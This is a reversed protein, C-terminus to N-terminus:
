LNWCVFQGSAVPSPATPRDLPLLYIQSPTTADLTDPGVLHGAFALASGDPALPPHSLAYQDFFSFIFTQERSPLFRVLEVTEGTTRTFRHWRLHSRHIDVSLYLLADGRPSWFFGLIPEDLLSTIRGAALDLLKVSSFILTGPEATDGFALVQGDASWLAVAHGDIAAIPGKEGTAVDYLFLTDGGSAEQEVYALLDDQPSWVPVRFEGPSTSVERIMRGSAVDFVLVRADASARRSGKVHVALREGRPSWSWFLPAGKVLPLLTGPHAPMIIELSLNQEGRQVLAAFVDGRPSWNGYIPMGGTLEALEWSEIGDAAVAYV